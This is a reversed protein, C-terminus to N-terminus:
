KRSRKLLDKKDIILGLAVIILLTAVSLLTVFQQLSKNLFLSSTWILMLSIGVFIGSFGLLRCNFRFLTLLGVLLSLLGSIWYFKLKTLDMLETLEMQDKERSIIENDNFADLVSSKPHIWSVYIHRFTQTSSIFIAILFLTM